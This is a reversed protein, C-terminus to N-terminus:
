RLGAADAEGGIRFGAASQEASRFLETLGDRTIPRDDEEIKTM